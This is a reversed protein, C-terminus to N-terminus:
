KKKSQNSITLIASLAKKMDEWVLRRNENTYFRLLYAPHFTLMVQYGQFSHWTGRERTIAVNRGLLTSSAPKGLAVIVKPNIAKIQKELFSSCADIEDKEPDRNNPPRCKVINCIYVDSRKLGMGKEIIDTLKQGAMGVFPVGQKDEEQGPGEGVFVIDANKNGVGFVIHTRTSFLKCRRCDGLEEKIESLTLSMNTLPKKSVDNKFNELSPIEVPIEQFGFLKLYSLHEKLDEIIRLVKKQTQNM